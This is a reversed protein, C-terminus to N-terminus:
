AETRRKIFKVVGGLLPIHEYLMAGADYYDRHYFVQEQYRIHSNGTVSLLRGGSLRKHRYHMVWFLVSEQVLAASEKIPAIKESGQHKTVSGTFEFRCELLGEFMKEFYQTLQHLGEIRQLPDQFIIDHRYVKSLEAVIRQDFTSYLRQIKEPVTEGM